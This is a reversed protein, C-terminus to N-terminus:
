QGAVARRGVGVGRCGRAASQQSGPSAAPGEQTAAASELRNMVGNIRAAEAAETAAIDAAVAPNEATVAPTEGAPIEVGTEAMAAAEAEVSGQAAVPADDAAPQEEEEVPPASDYESVSPLVPTPLGIVTLLTALVPITSRGQASAVDAGAPQAGDPAAFTTPEGHSGIPTLGDPVARQIVPLSRVVGGQQLVHTTEHAMLSINHQSEGRGLWIHNRHTFARASLAASTQQAAGGEHVRVNGLDAQLRSELIRRTQPIIPTGAGPQRIAHAAAERMVPSGGSLPREGAQGSHRVQSEHPNAKSRTSLTQATEEEEEEQRQVSLRQVEEEEAVQRQVSLAQAPEEEEEEQRQVSLRQVEEEEAVQRQVTMTQAPEEEEEEEQRQVSLRQVDEEEEAVQRQVTLTQAPEEEEEEQRQTLGGPPLTSIHSVSQGAAVRRAVADAEREYPDNPEGIAVKTQVPGLSVMPGAAYVLPNPARVARADLASVSESGTFASRESRHKAKEAPANAHVITSM